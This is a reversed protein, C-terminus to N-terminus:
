ECSALRNGSVVYKEGDTQISLITGYGLPPYERYYAERAFKAAYEGNFEGYVDVPDHPYKQSENLMPAETNM